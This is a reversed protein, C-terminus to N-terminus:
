AAFLGSAGRGLPKICSAHAHALAHRVYCVATRHSGQQACVSVWTGWCAPQPRGSSVRVPQVVSLATRAYINLGYSSVSSRWSVGSGAHTM